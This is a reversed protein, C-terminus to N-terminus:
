YLRKEVLWIFHPFILHLIASQKALNLLIKRDKGSSSEGRGWLNKGKNFRHSKVSRVILIMVPPVKVVVCVVQFSLIIVTILFGNALYM